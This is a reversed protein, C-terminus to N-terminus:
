ALFLALAILVIAVVIVAWKTLALFANWTDLSQKPLRDFDVM